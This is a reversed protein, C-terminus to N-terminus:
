RAEGKLEELEERKPGRGRRQDPAAMSLHEFRRWRFINLGGGLYFPWDIYTFINLGGGLYNFPQFMCEFTM